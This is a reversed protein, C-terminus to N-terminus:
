VIVVLIILVLLLIIFVIGVFNILGTFMTQLAKGILRVHRYIMILTILYVLLGVIVLAKLLITVISTLAIEDIM